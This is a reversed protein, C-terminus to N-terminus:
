LLERLAAVDRLLLCGRRTEVLGAAAFRKLMRAVVERASSTHQALEEHTMRLEACGTRDYEAVLFAALRRDYGQFMIQQISEMVASFRETAVEYLYCRAYINRETLAAFTGASVVLIECDQQATMHTDFAIRNVACSASLVDTDGQHLRFLTIERGEESLMYTRIEGRLLLIMGLCDGASGYIYQGKEYRQVEAAGRVMAKEEDSLKDWYPLRALYEEM